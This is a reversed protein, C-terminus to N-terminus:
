LGPISALQSRSPVRASVPKNYDSYVITTVVPQGAVTETVTMKRILHQTDSWVSFHVKGQIMRLVSRFVARFKAPMHSIASAATFYGTYETTQVGGIVQTGVQHVGNAGALFQAQALPNSSRMQDIMSGFAAGLRGSGTLSIKIWKGRTGPIPLGKLYFAKQTIIETIHLSQGAASMTATAALLVRPKLQAQESATMTTTGGTQVTMTARVSSVRAATLADALIAQRAGAATGAPQSAGPGPTGTGNSGCGALILAGGALLTSFLHHPRTTFM